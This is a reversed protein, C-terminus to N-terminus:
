EAGGFGSIGILDSVLQCDIEVSSEGLRVGAIPDVAVCNRIVTHM